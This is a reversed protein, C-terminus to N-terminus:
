NEVNRVQTTIWSRGFVYFKEVVKDMLHSVHEKDPLMRQLVKTENVLNSTLKIM